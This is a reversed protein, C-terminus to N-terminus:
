EKKKIKRKCIKKTLPGDYGAVDATTNVESALIEEDNTMEDIVQKILERLTEKSIEM